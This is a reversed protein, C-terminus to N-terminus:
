YSHCVSLFLCVYRYVCSRERKKGATAFKLGTLSGKSRVALFDEHRTCNIGQYADHWMRETNNGVRSLYRCTNKAIQKEASAIQRAEEATMNDWEMPARASDTIVNFPRDAVHLAVRKLKKGKPALAKRYAKCEKSSLVTQAPGQLYLIRTQRCVFTIYMLVFMLVAACPCM